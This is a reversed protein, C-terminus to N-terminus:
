VGCPPVYTHFISVNRESKQLEGFQNMYYSIGHTKDELLFVQTWSGHGSPCWRQWSRFVSPHEDDKGQCKWERLLYNEQHIKVLGPEQEHCPGNITMFSVILAALINM